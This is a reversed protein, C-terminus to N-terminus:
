VKLLSRLAQIFAPQRLYKTASRLWADTAEALTRRWIALL